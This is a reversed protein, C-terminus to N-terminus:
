AEREQAVANLAARIFGCLERAVATVAKNPHKRRSLHWFRRSLRHQAEVAIAVAEPKQGLM